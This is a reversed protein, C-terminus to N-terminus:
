RAITWTRKGDRTYAVYFCRPLRITAMQSDAPQGGHRYLRIEQEGIKVSHHTVSSEEKPIPLEPKKKAAPEDTTAAKDPEPAATAAANGCAMLVVCLLWALRASVPNGSVASDSVFFQKKM